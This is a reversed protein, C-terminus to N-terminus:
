VDADQLNLYDDRVQFFRGVTKMFPLVDLDQNVTAESRM